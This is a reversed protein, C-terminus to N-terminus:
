LKCMRKLTTEVIKQLIYEVSGDPDRAVIETASLSLLWDPRAKHRNANLHYYRRDMPTSVHNDDYGLVRDILQQNMGGMMDGKRQQDM